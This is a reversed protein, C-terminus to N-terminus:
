LSANKLEKRFLNQLVLSEAKEIAPLYKPYNDVVWQDSQSKENDGFEKTYSLLFLLSGRNFNIGNKEWLNKYGSCKDGHATVIGACWMESPTKKFVELWFYELMRELYDYHNKYKVVKTNYVHIDQPLYKRDLMRMPTDSNVREVFAEIAEDQKDVPFYNVSYSRDEEAGVFGVEILEVEGVMFVDSKCKRLFMVDQNNFTFCYVDNDWDMHKKVDEITLRPTGQTEIEKKEM